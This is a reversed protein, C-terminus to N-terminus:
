LNELKEELINIETLDSRHNTVLTILVIFNDFFYFPPIEFTNITYCQFMPINLDRRVVYYDSTM